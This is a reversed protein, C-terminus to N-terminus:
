PLYPPYLRCDDGRRGRGLGSLAFTIWLPVRGLFAMLPVEAHLRVNARICLRAQNMRQHRRRGIGMLHRLGMGQQVPLFADSEAIRAILPNLLPFLVPHGIHFPIDGQPGALASGQRIVFHATDFLLDSLDLRAYSGLDLMGEM